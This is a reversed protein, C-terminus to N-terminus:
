GVSFGQAYALVEVHCPVLADRKLLLGTLHVRAYKGGCMPSLRTVWASAQGRRIHKGIQIEFLKIYVWSVGLFRIPITKHEAVAM